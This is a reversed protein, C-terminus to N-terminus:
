VVSKRDRNDHSVLGCIKEVKHGDIEEPIIVEEDGMLKNANIRYIDAFGDRLKYCFIGSYFMDPDVVPVNADPLIDDEPECPSWASTQIVSIMSFLLSVALLVAIFRKIKGKKM